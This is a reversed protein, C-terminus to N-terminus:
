KKFISKLWTSRMSTKSDASKYDGAIGFVESDRDGGDYPNHVSGGGFTVNTYRESDNNLSYLNDSSEGTSMVNEGTYVGPIGPLMPEEASATAKHRVQEISFSVVSYVIGIAATFAFV